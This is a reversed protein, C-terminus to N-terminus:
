DWVCSTSINYGSKSNQSHLKIPVGLLLSFMLIIQDTIPSREILALFLSGFLGSLGFMIWSDKDFPQLLINLSTKLERENKLFLYMGIQNHPHGFSLSETGRLCLTYTGYFLDFKVLEHTELLNNEYDYSPNFTFNMQNAFQQLIWEEYHPNMRWFFAISKIVCKNLNRVARPFIQFQQNEDIECLTHLKIIKIKRCWGASFPEYIYVHICNNKLVLVIVNTVFSENWFHEFTKYICEEQIAPFVVIYAQFNTSSRQKLIDFSKLNTHNDAFILSLFNVSNSSNLYSDILVPVNSSKINDTPFLVTSFQFISVFNITLSVNEFIKQIIWSIEM